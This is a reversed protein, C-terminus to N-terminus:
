RFRPKLDLPFRRMLFFFVPYFSAWLTWHMAQVSIAITWTMKKEEIMNVYFAITALSSVVLCIGFVLLWHRLFLARRSRDLDAQDEMHDLAPAELTVSGSLILRIGQVAVPSPRPAAAFHRAAGM